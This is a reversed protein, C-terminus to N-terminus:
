AKAPAGEAKLAKYRGFAKLGEVALIIAAIVLFIGVLGMLTNGIVVEVGKASGTFVKALLSYSTYVLAAITAIFMFIMPYFTWGYPKGESMLWATMLMLAMSAM